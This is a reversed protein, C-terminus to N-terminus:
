TSTSRQFQAWESAITASEAKRARDRLIFFFRTFGGLVAVTVALLFFVGLRAATILPSGNDEAGYCVTCAFAPAVGLLGAVLAVVGAALRPVVRGRTM